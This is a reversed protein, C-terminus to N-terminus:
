SGELTGTLGEVWRAVTALAAKRTRHVSADIGQVDDGHGDCLSWVSRGGLSDHVSSVFCAHAGDGSSFDVLVEQVRDKKHRMGGPCPRKPGLTLGFTTKNNTM